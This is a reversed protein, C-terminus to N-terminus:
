SEVEVRDAGFKEQLMEVAATDVRLETEVWRSIPEVQFRVALQGPMQSLSERAERLLRHTARRVKVNVYGAPEEIEADPASPEFPRVEVARLERLRGVAEEERPEQQRGFERNNPRATVIVMREREICGGSAELIKGSVSVEISGTLDELTMIRMRAPREDGEGKRALNIERIGTIIGAITVKDDDETLLDISAAIRALQRRYPRLPHDSLYIGLYEKELALKEMLPAEEGDAFDPKSLGADPDAEGFLNEQGSIAQKARQEAYALASDLCRLTQARNPHLSDLAGAKILAELTARNAGSAGRMRSILDCLDEFPGEAKRSRLIAEVAAEGVGKIGQLGFRIAKEEVSFGSESKNVDPPLVRIGLRRCEEICSAIKEKRDLYVAMLAAMYEVPYNAKLYATQYALYAYCVAHAKNFAYGAFDEIDNFLKAAQEKSIGRQKAGEFFEPRMTAMTDAKKKGMAYRLVDARGLTFGALAQVVKLVHDQYVIIGYTDKLIPELLPHDYKVEEQRHKRRIYSDIHKMPGPRYLAVMDSLEAVSTPQLRQIHKRMGASELQFVGTTHGKALMAYTKADNLPIKQVDIEEGKFRKINEVARALVSLNALGLFDMKLLGLQELNGMHYQTVVSDDAARALPVHESLPERSIVVGAAHVSSNRTLGELRKAMEILRKADESKAIEAQLEPSTKVAEDIKDMKILRALRDVLQAPIAMARGADRVAARAAMSGFTVIQAVRDPGYKQRVYQIVEDRRADEFDMDIDPMQLRDVNLFREFTLDHAVPDIDTIGICYSVLSGAASGRVGYYIGKDRAFRAFDRVILFYSAYQTKAIVDLEHELRDLGAGSGFRDAYGARALQALYDSDSLGEPIDPAPLLRREFNFEFECRQAVEWPRVIAEPADAFLAAMEPKSKLYFEQTDFKMRRPNTIKDNTQVCLMVGHMEADEANLYHVDNTAIIPLKFEQAFSLLAQNVAKQADLRHDQLEIYFNEQGFIELHEAILSRARPRDNDLIAQPIQGALCSSTAILGKSYQRLVEKDVRPKYYFGELMGITSLKLLNRYGQEDKALVLLHYYNRERGPEDERKTRPERDKRSAPAVYLECGIIPKIGQGKCANYFDLAGYLAGHDTIAVAPMDLDAVKKVLQPLRVAGDLLSYETHLHLHVFPDSM